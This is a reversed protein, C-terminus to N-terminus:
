LNLQGLGWGLTLRLVFCLKNVQRFQVTQQQGEMDVVHLRGTVAQPWKVLNKRSETPSLSPNKLAILSLLSRFDDLPFLTVYVYKMLKWKTISALSHIQQASLLSLTKGSNLLWCPSFDTGFLSSRHGPLRWALLCLHFHFRSFTFGLSHTPSSRRGAPIM